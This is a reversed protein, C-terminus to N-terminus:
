LPWGRHYSAPWKPRHCKKRSFPAVHSKENRQAVCDSCGVVVGQWATRFDDCTPKEIVFGFNLHMCAHGTCTHMCKHASRTHLDTQLTYRFLSTLCATQSVKPLQPVLSSYPNHISTARCSEHCSQWAHGHQDQLRQLLSSLTVMM